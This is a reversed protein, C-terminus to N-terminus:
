TKEKKRAAKEQESDQRDALRRKKRRALWAALGVFLPGVPGSGGFNFDSSQDRDRRAKRPSAPPAPTPSGVPQSTRTAPVAAPQAEVLETGQPGLETAFKGRITELNAALKERSARDRTLRRLNRREIQWRRYEADNELVLFSTYETAISYLEGLQVVEDVIASTAGAPDRDELLRDVVHWAWMREIEPNSDDRAPFELESTSSIERGNIEATVSIKATGSKRYRGYLRIPTGHYLNPLERPEVDHARVGDITIRVNRAVSHMLKRRFAKAQRQFNDGRSVFSALGGAGKAIQRLLPRNVENGVGVCFVRVHAPRERILSHLAQREKQETMGDSLVVVNLPRDPDGYKYALRIAPSLLTGGRAEQTALFEGAAARTEESAFNLKEFLMNSSINFTIVDFRDKASLADIFAGISERSIRLKGKTAMSGSIDLIFVYDMGEDLRELDEGATFMLCFYGDEGPPNSAVLDLGTQPRQLKYAVVLDRNLDGENTELSAQYYDERHSAIVFDQGHSPSEMEAIPIASKVDLSFAFTGKTRAQIDERTVTALPYVYTAWNHDPDLEQYYTVKVKQEARPNIPFIRMEFTKYDVQELLGPDIRRRKYSDYIERARKKEVVEGVMEQGGIWMSFNSVSAKKPVPFTYLAEVQRNELNRFVQTVETVAIGNNITVQVTHEEIELQGGFGGDAVLLGAASVRGPLALGLASVIAGICFIRTRTM